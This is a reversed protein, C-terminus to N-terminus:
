GLLFLFLIDDRFWAKQANERAKNVRKRSPLPTSSEPPESFDDMSVWEEQVVLSRVIGKTGGTGEWEIHYVIINDSITVAKKNKGQGKTKQQVQLEKLKKKHRILTKAANEADASERAERLKIVEETTIIRAKTLRKRNTFNAQLKETTLQRFKQNIHNGIEKETISQQLGKDM